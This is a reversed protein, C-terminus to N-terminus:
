KGRRIMQHEKPVLPDKPKPMECVVPRSINDLKPMICVDPQRFM